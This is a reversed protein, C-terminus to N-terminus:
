DDCYITVRPREFFFTKQVCRRDDGRGLEAYFREMDRGCVDIGMPVIATSAVHKVVAWIVSLKPFWKVKFPMTESEPPLM